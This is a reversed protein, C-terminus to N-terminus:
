LGWLCIYSNSCYLTETRLFFIQPASVANSVSWKNRNRIIKYCILLCVADLIATQYIMLHWSRRRVDVFHQVRWCTHSFLLQTMGWPEQCNIDTHVPGDTVGPDSMAAEFRQPAWSPLGPLEATGSSVFKSWEIILHVNDFSGGRASNDGGSWLPTLWLGEVGERRCPSTLFHTFGPLVVFSHIRYLYMVLCDANLELLKLADQLWCNTWGCNCSSSALSDDIRSLLLWLDDLPWEQGFCWSVQCIHSSFNWNMNALELQSPLPLLITILMSSTTLPTMTGSTMVSPEGGFSLTSDDKQIVQKPQWSPQKTLCQHFAPM